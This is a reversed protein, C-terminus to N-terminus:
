FTAIHFLWWIENSKLAVWCKCICGTGKPRYLHCSLEKSVQFKYSCILKLLGICFIGGGEGLTEELLCHFFDKRKLTDYMEYKISIESYDLFRYASLIYIWSFCRHCRHFINQSVIVAWTATGLTDAVVLRLKSFFIAEVFPFLKVQLFM